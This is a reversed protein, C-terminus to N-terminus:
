EGVALAGGCTEDRALWAPPPIGNVDLADLFRFRRAATCFWGTWNRGITVLGARYPNMFIYFAYAETDEDVRLRHEFVNEQWITKRSKTAQTMLAKAKAICQELRLRNGLECLLHVHDPMITGTMWQFDGTECMRLLVSQATVRASTNGFVRQRGATCATIFYVAGPISIRGIRLNATKRNSFSMEQSQCPM